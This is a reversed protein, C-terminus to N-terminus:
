TASFVAQDQVLVDKRSLGAAGEGRPLAATKVAIDSDPITPAHASATSTDFATGARRSHPWGHDLPDKLWSQKEQEPLPIVVAILQDVSQLQPTQNRM